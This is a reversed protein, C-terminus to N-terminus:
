KKVIYKSIKSGDVSPNELNDREGMKGVLVRYGGKREEM